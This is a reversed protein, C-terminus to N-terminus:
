SQSKGLWEAARLLDAMHNAANRNDYVARIRGEADVAFTLPTDRPANLAKAITEGEDALMGAPLGWRRRFGAAVAPPAPLVFRLTVGCEGFTAAKDAYLQMFDRMYDDFSVPLVCLLLPKGGGKLSVPAGSEEKLAFEPLLDGAELMAAGASKPPTRYRDLNEIFGSKRARDSVTRSRFDIGCFAEFEALSRVKGLGYLHMDKVAAPDLVPADRLLYNYRQRSITLFKVWDKRDTWHLPRTEGKAAENYYHYIIARVPSFVDWGHTFARAALTIEEHDFYLYPDYPIERLFAGPAFLLGAALFAGRLPKEPALPLAEGDFRIDGQENFPKARMVIPSPNEELRDPPKYGPPYTSLFPKPAECNALEEILARDWGPIFRMHSDIMLVYDEGAYLKQAEHRAWCVGNAEATRFFVTKTQDPRPSPVEFCHRDLEPEGQWCIGVNVREPNEAKEFLDKVTWQCEPDRYSAIQVFISPKPDM